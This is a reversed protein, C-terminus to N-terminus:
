PQPLNNARILAAALAQNEAAFNKVLTTVDANEIYADLTKGTDAFFSRRIHSLTIAFLNRAALSPGTTTTTIVGVLEGRENAAGGGSSGEQAAAGGGLALVEALNDGNFAYLTQIKAYALTPFLSALIRAAGLFESGYSGLVVPENTVPEEHTLPIAPFSAPFVASDATGTIALLAFDNEGTGVRTKATITQLNANIWGPSVYVVQATYARTAPSGTRVVCSYMSQPKQLLLFQGVHAATLIIGRSDIIVGSGSSGPLSRDAPICIINVTASRLAPLALALGPTENEVQIIDPAKSAALPTTTAALPKKPVQKAATSSAVPTTSGVSVGVVSSPVKKGPTQAVRSPHSRASYAAAVLRSSLAPHLLAYGAAFVVVAALIPLAHSRM